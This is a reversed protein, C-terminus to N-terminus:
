NEKEPSKVEPKKEPAAMGNSVSDSFYKQDLDVVGDQGQSSKQNSRDFYPAKKIEELPENLFANNKLYEMERDLRRPDVSAQLPTLSLLTLM